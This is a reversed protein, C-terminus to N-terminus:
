CGYRPTGDFQAIGNDVADVSEIFNKYMKRFLIEINKNEEDSTAAGTIERLVDRGFHTYVLGASSLRTYFDLKPELSNLTQTFERYFLGM